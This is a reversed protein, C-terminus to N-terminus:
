EFNLPSNIPNFICSESEEPNFKAAGHYPIIAYIYASM